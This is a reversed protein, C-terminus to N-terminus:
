CGRTASMSEVDRMTCSSSLSSATFKIKSSGIEVDELSANVRAVAQEAGSTGPALPSERQTGITHRGARDTRSGGPSSSSFPPGSRIKGNSRDGGGGGGLLLRVM